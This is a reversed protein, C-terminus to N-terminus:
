IVNTSNDKDKYKFIEDNKIIYYNNIVEKEKQINNGFNNYKPIPSIFLLLPILLFLYEKKLREKIMNINNQVFKKNKNTKVIDKLSFLIYNTALLKISSIVFLYIILSSILDNFNISFTKNAILLIFYIIIYYISNNVKSININKSKSDVNKIYLNVNFIFNYIFFFLILILLIISIILYM